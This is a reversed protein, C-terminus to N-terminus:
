FSFNLGINIRRRILAVPNGPTEPNGGKYSSLTFLNDARATLVLGSMHMYKLQAPSLTYSFSANKLALYSADGWFVNSQYLFSNFGYASYRPYVAVDGPKHWANLIQITQNSNGALLYGPTSGVGANINLLGIQRAYTFNGSLSFGKYGVECQIGGTFDPAADVYTTTVGVQGPVQPNDYTGTQPNFPFTLRYLQARSISRGIVYQDKYLSNQLNPFAILKNSNHSINFGVSWSIKQGPASRYNLQGEVGENQVLAPSNFLLNSFGTIATVPNYIIQNSSRTRYINGSLLLRDALFGLDLGVEAKRTQSWRVNPNAPRTVSYTPVGLYIDVLTDSSYTSLWTYPAGVPMGTVGYSGRVKGFSFAKNGTHGLMWKESSFIWAAAVSGFTGYKNGPGFDSSGDRRGNLTILYRGEYNYGIRAYSSAMRTQNYQDQSTVSAAGALSTQLDDSLWGTGTLTQFGQYNRFYTAGALAEVRHRGLTFTYSVTPEINFATFYNDGFGTVRSVATLPDTGAANSQVQTQRFRSSSYSTRLNVKLNDVIRYSMENTLRYEKADATYPKVLNSVYPADNAIRWENWNIKGDPTFLDPANPALWILGELSGNPGSTGSTSFQVMNDIKFHGDATQTSTSLQATGRDNKYDQAINDPTGPINNFDRFYGINLRFTTNGEGGGMSVNTTVAPRTGILKQQWDTYRSQDWQLLDYANNLTPTVDDNKIAEKRMALYQGTSLLKLKEMQKTFGGSFNGSVTIKGARSKKTTIMIAGNAGMSGYIATADADKLVSVSEIDEPNIGFLPNQGSVSGAFGNAGALGLNDQAVIGTPLPFGDVLILPTNLATNNGSLANLASIARQGRLSINYTATAAAGNQTLYLGPVLGQLAELVNPSSSKSLEKTSITTVDGTSLRGTTKGYAIVQAEDLKSQAPDMSVFLQHRGAEIRRTEYGIYSVELTAMSDVDPIRFHGYGNTITVHNSNPVSVTAGTVPQGREDVVLGFVTINGPESGKKGPTPTTKGTIIITKGTITFTFPLDRLIAKLADELNADKLDVDILYSDKISHSTWLINYGTQRYIEKFVRKLTIHNQKLTVQQAQTSISLLIVFFSLWYFEKTFTLHM